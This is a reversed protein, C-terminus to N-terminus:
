SIIVNIYDRNINWISFTLKGKKCGVYEVGSEKQYLWSSKQPNGTVDNGRIFHVNNTLLFTISFM